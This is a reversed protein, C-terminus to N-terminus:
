DYKDDIKAADTVVTKQANMPQDVVLRLKLGIVPFYHCLRDITGIAQPPDATIGKVQLPEGAGTVAIRLGVFGNKM